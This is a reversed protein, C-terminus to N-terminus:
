VQVDKEDDDDDDDDGIHLKFSVYEHCPQEVSMETGSADFKGSRLGLRWIWLRVTKGRM